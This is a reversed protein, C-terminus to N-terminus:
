HRKAKQPKILKAAYGADIITKKLGEAAVRNTDYAVVALKKGFTVDASIVGPMRRLESALGRACGDCSM